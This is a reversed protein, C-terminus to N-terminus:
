YSFLIIIAYDTFPQKRHPPCVGYIWAVFKAIYLQARARPM